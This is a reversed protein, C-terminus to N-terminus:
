VGVRIDIICCISYETIDQIMRLLHNLLSISIISISAMISQTSFFIHTFQNQHSHPHTHTLRETSDLEKHGWPRDM